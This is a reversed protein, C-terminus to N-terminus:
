EVDRSEEMSEDDMDKDDEKEAEIRRKRPSRRLPSIYSENMSNTYSNYLLEYALMDAFECISSKTSNSTRTGYNLGKWCDTVPMGLITTFIRFWCNATVWYKELKLEFQCVHNHSDIANSRKFYNSIVQPRNVPRANSFSTDDKWRACYPYGPLTNGAKETAVFTMVKRSTYKYGIAVLPQQHYPEIGKLFLTRVM